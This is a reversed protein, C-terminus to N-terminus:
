ELNESCQRCCSLRCQGPLDVKLGVGEGWRVLLVTQMAWTSRSRSGLGVGEGGGGMESVPWVLYM